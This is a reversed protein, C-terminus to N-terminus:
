TGIRLVSIQHGNVRYSITVIAGDNRGYTAEYQEAVSLVHGPFTEDVGNAPIHYRDQIEDPTLARDDARVTISYETESDNPAWAFYRSSGAQQYLVWVLQTILFVAGIAM